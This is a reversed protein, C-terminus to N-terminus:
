LSKYFNYYYKIEELLGWEQALMKVHSKLSRDVLHYRQEIDDLSMQDDLFAKIIENRLPHRKSAVKLNGNEILAEQLPREELFMDEGIASLAKLGKESNVLILSVGKTVNHKFRNGHRGIGWFDGLTVDGVRPITAYPCLYCSERFTAGKAFADM